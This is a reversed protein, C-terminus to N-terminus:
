QKENNSEALLRIFEEADEGEPVEHIWNAYMAVTPKPLSIKGSITRAKQLDLVGTPQAHRKAAKLFHKDLVLMGILADGDFDANPAAIANLSIAITKIEPNTEIEDVYFLQCSLRDLTPPRYFMVPYGKGEPHEALIEKLLTDILPHYTLTHSYLLEEAKNGTYGRKLLKNILMMKFVSVSVGWPLKLADYNHVNSRSSIVARFSYAQRSGFVHKRFWGPKGGLVSTFQQRYYKALQVVARAAALENKRQSAPVVDQSLEAITRVADLASFMQKDAYTIVSTKETIFLLKNPIPLVPTFIKDRNQAIFSKLDLRKQVGGSFISRGLLVEIIDDFNDHFANIGRPFNHSRLVDLKPNDNINNKYGPNILWELLNCDNVTFAQSMMTWMQPNILAKVGDPARIWVTPEIPRETPPVVLTGCSPCVTNRKPGGHTEGCECTPMISISGGEYKTYIISDLYAQGEPTSTDIDNVYIPVTKLRVLVDLHNVIIPRVGERTEIAVYPAVEFTDM